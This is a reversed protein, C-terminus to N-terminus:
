LNKLMHYNEKLCKLVRMLKLNLNLDEVNEEEVQLPIKPIPRRMKM